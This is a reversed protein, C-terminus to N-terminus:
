LKMDIPRVRGIVCDVLTANSPVSSTRKRGAGIIVCQMCSRSAGSAVNQVSSGAVLPLYAGHYSSVM